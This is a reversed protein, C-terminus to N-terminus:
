GGGGGVTLSPLTSRNAATRVVGRLAGSSLGLPLHPPRTSRGSSSECPTPPPPSGAKGNGAQSGPANSGADGPSVPIPKPTLRSGLQTGPAPPTLDRLKAHLGGLGGPPLAPPTHTVPPGEAEPLLVLLCPVSLDLSANLRVSEPAGRGYTLAWAGGGGLQTARSLSSLRETGTEEDAGPTLFPVQRTPYNMLVPHAPTQAVHGAAGLVSSAPPLRDRVDSDDMPPLHRPRSQRSVEPSRELTNRRKNLGNNM